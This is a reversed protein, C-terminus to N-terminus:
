KKLPAKPILIDDRILDGFCMALAVANARDLAGLAKYIVALHRNVTETAVNLRRGIQANTHGNAVLALVERQRGTLSCGTM